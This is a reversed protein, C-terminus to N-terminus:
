KYRTSLHRRPGFIVLVQLSYTATNRTSVEMYIRGNCTIMQYVSIYVRGLELRKGRQGRMVRQGCTREDRPVVREGRFGSSVVCRSPSSRV